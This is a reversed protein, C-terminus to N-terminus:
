QKTKSEVESDDRTSVETEPTTPEQGQVDPRIVEEDLCIWNGSENKRWNKLDFYVRAVGRIRRVQNEVLTIKAADLFSASRDGALYLEGSLRVTGRFSGFRLKQIDIWHKALVSRVKSNIQFDSISM